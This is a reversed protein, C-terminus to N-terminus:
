EEVIGGNDGIAGGPTTGIQGVGTFTVGGGGGGGSGGTSGSVIFSTAMFIGLSIGDSFAPNTILNSEAPLWGNVAADPPQGQGCGCCVPQVLGTCSGDVPNVVGSAGTSIPTIM